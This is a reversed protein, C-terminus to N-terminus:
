GWTHDLKVVAFRKFHGQFPYAYQYQPAIQWGGEANRYGYLKTSKDQSLSQAMMGGCVAFLLLIFITLRKM